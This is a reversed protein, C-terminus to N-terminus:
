CRYQFMIGRKHGKSFQKVFEQFTSQTFALRNVIYFCNVLPVHSVPLTRMADIVILFPSFLLGVIFFNIFVFKIKLIRIHDDNFILVDNILRYLMVALCDM